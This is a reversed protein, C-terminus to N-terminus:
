LGAAKLKEKLAGSKNLAFLDDCGGISSGSIFTNPVTRQGTMEAVANQMADGGPVQDLEVAQYPVNMQNLLKKAKVCFPCYSKSFMVITNDKVLKKVASTVSSTAM